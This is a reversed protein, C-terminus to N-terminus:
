EVDTTSAITGVGGVSKWGERVTPGSMLRLVTDAKRKPTEVTWVYM